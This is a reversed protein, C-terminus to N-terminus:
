CTLLDAWRYGAACRSFYNSVCSALDENSLTNQKDKVKHCVLFYFINILLYFYLVDIVIFNFWFFILQGVPFWDPFVNM